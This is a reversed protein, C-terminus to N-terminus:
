AWLIDIATLMSTLAAVLTIGDLDLLTSAASSMPLGYNGMDVHRKGTTAKVAHACPECATQILYDMLYANKQNDSSRYTTTDSVNLHHRSHPADMCHVSPWWPRSPLSRFSCCTRPAALRDAANLGRQTSTANRLKQPAAVTSFRHTSKRLPRRVLM